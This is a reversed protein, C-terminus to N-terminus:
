GISPEGAGSEKQATQGEGRANKGDKQVEGVNNKDNFIAVVPNVEKQGKQGKQSKQTKAKQERSWRDVYSEM